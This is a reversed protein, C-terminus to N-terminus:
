DRKLSEYYDNIDDFRKMLEPEYAHADTGFCIKMNYKNLMKAVKGEDEFLEKFSRGWQFFYGKNCNVEILINRKNLYKMLEEQSTNLMMHWYDYEPHALIIEGKFRSRLSDLTAFVQSLSHYKEYREIIIYDLDEFAIKDMDKELDKFYIEVGAKIEHSTILMKQKTIKMVYKDWRYEDACLHRYHDSIGIVKAYPMRRIISEEVTVHGDSHITHAHLDTRQEFALEVM